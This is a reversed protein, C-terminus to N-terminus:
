AAEVSYPSGAARSQCTPCHEVAAMRWYYRAGQQEWSCKCNAMCESGETPYFPLGQYRTAYYTGRTPGAYLAARAQAQAMTLKGAKLDAVFGDLYALQAAIREDLERREARSLGKVLAPTTGLREATAAIYAATQSRRIAVEMARRWAGISGGNALTQTAPGILTLPQARLIELSTAMGQGIEGCRVLGRRAQMAQWVAGQWALVLRDTGHRGHRVLGPWVAACRVWGRAAQRVMGRWAQGHRAM